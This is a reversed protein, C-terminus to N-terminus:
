NRPARFGAAEADAANNFCIEPKTRSYYRSSPTHYIGSNANGQVSYEAPCDYESIPPAGAQNITEGNPAAPPPPEPTPTPLDVPVGSGGCAGWLGQNEERAERKAALFRDQYKVDPPYTSVQAYGWKVLEENLIRQGDPHPIWVYRLLRQYQDRESIDKELLM